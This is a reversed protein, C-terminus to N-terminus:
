RRSAPPAASRGARRGAYRILPPSATPATPSTSSVWTGVAFPSSGSTDGRHDDREAQGRHEPQRGLQDDARRRGLAGAGRRADALRARLETAREPDREEAADADRDVAADRAPAEELAQRGVRRGGGPVREAARDAHRACQRGTRGVLQERGGPGGEDVAHVHRGAIAATIPSPRATNANTVSRSRSVAGDSGSGIQTSGVIISWGTSLGNAFGARSHKQGGRRLLGTAADDGPAADGGTQGVDERSEAGVLEIGDVRDPHVRVDGMRHPRRRPDDHGAEVRAGPRRDHPLAAPRDFVQAEASLLPEDERLRVALLPHVEDGM